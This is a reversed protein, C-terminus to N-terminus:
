GKPGSEGKAESGAVHLSCLVDPLSGGVICLHLYSSICNNQLGSPLIAASQIVEHLQQTSMHHYTCQMHFCHLCALVDSVQFFKHLKSSPLFHYM